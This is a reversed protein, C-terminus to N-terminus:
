GANDTPATTTSPPTTSTTTTSSTTGSGKGTSGTTSTPTTTTSASGTGTSATGPATTTTTAPPAVFPATEGTMTAASTSPTAALNTCKRAQNWSQLATAAATGTLPQPLGALITAPRFTSATVHRGVATLILAGSSTEPPTNDYFAFNGLGYDVYASGLYGGGLLVHADAGVVVDAGAKVLQEALPEQQPNPCAQTETGWHVYVIVTDATRRVQQVERVLATPDIASAVGGQTPTATWTGVLNSEIIQTAAIVAIRQGNITVRYPTLAQAANNGIGIIPFASQSAITLNQTLGQPGCDLGHDNAETVLNISSSKLATVASPPADFIYQKNQPEPCVNNDTLVTELNVMRLQAGAFLQPITTGLATSPNQALSDGVVGAFHVDGAFALTVAKGSGKWDPNLPSDKPFAQDVAPHAAPSTPPPTKGSGGSLFLLLVLLLLLLAGGAAFQRRRRRVRRSVM